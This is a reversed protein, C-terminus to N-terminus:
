MCVLVCTPMVCVCVCLSSANAGRRSCGPLRNVVQERPTPPSGQNVANASKQLKWIGVVALKLHGVHHREIYVSPHAVPCGM